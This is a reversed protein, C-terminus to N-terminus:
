GGTNKSKKNVREFFKRSYGTLMKSLREVHMQYFGSRIGVGKIIFVFGISFPIMKVINLLLTLFYFLYFSNMRNETTYFVDLLQNVLALKFNDMLLYGNILARSYTNYNSYALSQKVTHEDFDALTVNSFIFNATDFASFALAFILNIAISIIVIKFSFNAFYATDKVVHENISKELSEHTKLSKGNDVLFGYLLFSLVFLIILVPFFGQKIILGKAFSLFTIALIFAAISSLTYAILGPKRLVHSFESDKNFHDAILYRSGMQFEIIVSQTLYAIFIAFGLLFYDNFGVTAHTLFCIVAVLLGLFIRAKM